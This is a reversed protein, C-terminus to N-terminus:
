LQSSSLSLSEGQDVWIQDADVFNLQWFVLLESVGLNDDLFSFRNQSFLTMEKAELLM